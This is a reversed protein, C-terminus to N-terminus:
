QDVRALHADVAAIWAVRNEDQPSHAADPIVFLEAGKIERALIDASNRLGHDNEGVIVTVPCHLEALRPVLSEYRHLAHALAVFAARDLHEFKWQLREALVHAREPDGTKAVYEGFMAGVAAMGQQDAIKVVMETWETPIAGAMEAGTDMLVLSRVREPHDFTYRMSIIGGMSHGLLDFQELGLADVLRAFDRLLQDFTYSEADGTNDSEGHGRHDYTIVRRTSAFHDVVDIWDLQGGTYGHMLVLPPEVKGREDVALSIDGLDIRTM